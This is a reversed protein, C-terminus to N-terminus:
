GGPVLPISSTLRDAWDYCYRVDAVLVGDKVDMFRTPNGNMGARTNVGCSGTSAFEYSVVVCLESKLTFECSSGFFSLRSGLLASRL